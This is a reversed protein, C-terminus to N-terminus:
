GTQLRAIHFVAPMRGRDPRFREVVVFCHGELVALLDAERFVSVRPLFPTKAGLHLPWRLWSASDAICATSAVLVGGPILLQRLRSVAADLDSVLHLLNLALVVDYPGDAPDLDELAAVEFSLNELGADAARERGIAIMRESFDTAHLSRVYPAHLVATSGTGCGVELVDAEPHLYARTLRLKTEYSEQDAISVRSYRGAVRDWFRAQAQM